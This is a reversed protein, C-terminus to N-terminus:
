RHQQQEIRTLIDKYDFFENMFDDFSKSSFSTEPIQHKISEIIDQESPPTSIWDANFCNLNCKKSFRWLVYWPFVVCDDNSLAGSDKVYRSNMFRLCKKATEIVNIFKDEPCFSKVFDQVERHLESPLEIYKRGSTDNEANLIFAKFYTQFNIKDEIENFSSVNLVKCIASIKENYEKAPVKTSNTFSKIYDESLNDIGSFQEILFQAEPYLQERDSDKPYKETLRHRLEFAHNLAKIFSNLKQSEFASYEGTNLLRLEWKSLITTEQSSAIIIPKNDIRTQYEQIKNQISQRILELESEPLALEALGEKLSEAKVVLQETVLQPKLVDDCKTEFASFSAGKFQEAYGLAEIAKQNYEVNKANGDPYYSAYKRYIKDLEQYYSVRRSFQYPEFKPLDHIDSQLEEAFRKECEQWQKEINQYFIAAKPYNVQPYDKLFQDAAIITFNKNINNYRQELDVYDKLEDIQEQLASKKEDSNAIQYMQQLIDNRKVFESQSRENLQKELSEYLSTSNELKVDTRGSSAGTDVPIGPLGTNQKGDGTAAGKLIPNTDNGSNATNETNSKHDPGGAVPMSAVQNNWLYYVGGGVCLLLIIFITPVWSGGGAPREKSDHQAFYENSAAGRKEFTHAQQFLKNLKSDDLEEDSLIGIDIHPHRPVAKPDLCNLDPEVRVYLYRSGIRVTKTLVNDRFQRALENLQTAAQMRVAEPFGVDYAWGEGDAFWRQILIHVNNM